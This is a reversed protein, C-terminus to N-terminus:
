KKVVFYFPMKRLGDKGGGVPTNIIKNKVYLETSSGGDLNAANIAKYRKFISILDPITAGISSPIRGDIVLFLVIGDARQGIATRPAVGFGGNGVVKVSHGNIILFPGFEIADRYGQKLAEKDSFKGLVLKNDNTFGIFGGYHFADNNLSVIKGDKIVTGHPLAGNSNWDPDYFGGANISVISKERRSVTTIKEGTRGLYKSLAISVKSPDYIAVLYGSYGKGYIKIIKYLDNSKRDLIEKDYKSSFTINKGVEILSRDTVESDEEVRNKSLVKYIVEDNYFLKALYRHEMTTMSTTIFYEKFPFPGYFLLLFSFLIVIIFSIFIKKRM